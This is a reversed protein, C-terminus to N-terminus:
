KEPKQALIANAIRKLDQSYLFYRRKSLRIKHVLEEFKTVPCSHVTLAAEHESQVLNQWKKNQM